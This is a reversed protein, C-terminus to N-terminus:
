AGVAKRWFFTVLVIFYVSIALGLGTVFLRRFLKSDFRLHMFWLVVLAFKFVMLALLLGTLLHQGLNAYYIGVEIGTAVALIVGVKVYEVPGPHAHERSTTLPQRVPTESLPKEGTDAM